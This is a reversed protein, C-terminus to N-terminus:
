PRVYHSLFTKAADTTPAAFFDNSRADEVILGEKMFLVRDAVDHAFSMEHTVVVMTMGEKALDKMVSLVEAVLEPDLASTAEDFLMVEPKMALARAIAVRQKQGGSLQAPYDNAKPSLGVKQLLALGEQKADAKKRKKVTVLGEIVNEIVTMHPFLNFSQFVMGIQERFASLSNDKPARSSKQFEFLKGCVEISGTTPAVLLNLCRCLTSKGSGSPGILAVVEGKKVSFDIDQLVRHDAYYKNLKSVRVVTENSSVLM